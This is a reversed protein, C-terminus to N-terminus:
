LTSIWTIVRDDWQYYRSLEFRIGQWFLDTPDGIITFYVKKHNGETFIKCFFRQLKSQGFYSMMTWYSNLLSVGHIKNINELTIRLYFSTSKDVNTYILSTLYPHKFNASRMSLSENCQIYLFGTAWTLLIPRLSKSSSIELYLFPCFTPSSCDNRKVLFTVIRLWLSSM